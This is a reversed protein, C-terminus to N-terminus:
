EVPDITLSLLVVPASHESVLALQPLEAESGTSAAYVTFCGSTVTATVRLPPANFKLKLSSIWLLSFCYYLFELQIFLIHIRFSNKYIIPFSVISRGTHGSSLCLIIELGVPTFMTGKAAVLQSPIGVKTLMSDSAVIIPVFTEIVTLEVEGDRVRLNLSLGSIEITTFM